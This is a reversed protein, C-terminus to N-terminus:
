EEKEHKRADELINDIQQHVTLLVGMFRPEELAHTAIASVLDAPQNAEMMAVISQEAFGSVKEGTPKSAFLLFDFGGKELKNATKEILQLAQEKTMKMNM